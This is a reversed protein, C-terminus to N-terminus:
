PQTRPGSEVAVSVGGLSWLYLSWLLQKFLLSSSHSFPSKSSSRLSPLVRCCLSLFAPFLALLTFLKMRENVLSISWPFVLAAIFSSRSLSFEPIKSRFLQESGLSGLSIYNVVPPLADDAYWSQQLNHKSLDNILPTTALAYFPMALPDGQTTGEESYLTSGSAFLSVPIRDVVPPFVDSMFAGCKSVESRLCFM